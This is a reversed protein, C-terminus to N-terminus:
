RDWSDQYGTGLHKRKYASRLDTSGWRTGGAKRGVQVPALVVPVHPAARCQGVAATCCSHTTTCSDVALGPVAALSASM